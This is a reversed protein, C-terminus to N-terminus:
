SSGSSNQELRRILTEVSAPDELLDACGSVRESGLLPSAVRLAQGFLFALPRHAELLLLAPATLGLRELQCGLRNLIEDRRAPERLM